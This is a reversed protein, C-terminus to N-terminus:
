LLGDTERAVLCLGYLILDREYCCHMGMAKAIIEGDGGTVVCLLEGEFQQSYKTYLGLLGSSLLHVCGSVVADETNSALISM